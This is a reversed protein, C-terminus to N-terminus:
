KKRDRSFSLTGSDVLKDNAYIRWSYEDSDHCNAYAQMGGKEYRFDSPFVATSSNDDTAVKQAVYTTGDRSSLTYRVRFPRNSFKDSVSLHFQYCASTLWTPGQSLPKLQSNELKGTPDFTYDIVRECADCNGGSWYQISIASKGKCTIESAVWLRSPFDTDQTLLSNVTPLPAYKGEGERYFVQEKAQPVLNLCSSYKEPNREGEVSIAAAPCRKIRKYPKAVIPEGEAPCVDARANVSLMAAVVLFYIRM